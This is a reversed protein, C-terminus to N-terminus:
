GLGADESFLWTRSGGWGLLGWGVGLGPSFSGDTDRPGLCGLGRLRPMIFVDGGGRGGVGGLPFGGLEVGM